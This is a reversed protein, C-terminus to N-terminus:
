SMQQRQGDLGVLPTAVGGAAVGIRIEEERDAGGARRDLLDGVGLGDAVLAVGLGRTELEGDGGVLVGADPATGGLLLAALQALLVVVPTPAGGSGGAGGPARCREAPRHGGSRSDCSAPGGPGADDRSTVDPPLLTRVFSP